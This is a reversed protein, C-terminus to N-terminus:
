LQLIKHRQKTCKLSEVDIGLNKEGLSIQHKYNIDVDYGNENSAQIQNWLKSAVKLYYGQSVCNIILSLSLM